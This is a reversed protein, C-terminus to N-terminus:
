KQCFTSKRYIYHFAPLGETVTDRYTNRDEYDRIESESHDCIVLTESYASSLAPNYIYDTIHTVTCEWCSKEECSFVLALFLVLILKKM